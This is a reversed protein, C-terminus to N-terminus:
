YFFEFFCLIKNSIKFFFNEIIVCIQRVRFINFLFLRLFDILSCFLFIKLSELIEIIILKISKYKIMWSYNRKISYNRVLIHNHLLYIGYTLPSFLSIIRKFLNSSIEVKSFMFIFCISIIVCSPSTYDVIMKRGNNYHICKYIIIVTRLFAMLFIIFTIILFIICKNFNRSDKNFRGFYSGFFYLIILWMYTFGNIFYFFDKQLRKSYHKVQNFCSFLLFICFNFIGMERKEMSKIGLNIIPLFFYMTFYANFYWYDSIFLPYLFRTLDKVINPKKKKYFFAICFNYLFTQLLLYILNSYKHSHFGIFGSIMGFINVGSCFITNLFTLLQHKFTLVNTLFLPGGHYIIHHNIIFYMSLIRALDIGIYRHNKKKM